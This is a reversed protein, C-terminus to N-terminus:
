PTPTTAAREFIVDLYGLDRFLRSLYNEANQRALDLVGDENAAKEIEREAARRADTELTLQGKTLYGTERDYVYSKENDLDVVFIEPEPLTVYLVGDKVELDRTDLKSMDVGAIV